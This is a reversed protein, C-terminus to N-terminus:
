HIRKPLVFPPPLTSWCSPSSEVDLTIFKYILFLASAGVSLAFYPVGNGNLIGAYALTAIFIIAFCITAPVVKDGFLVATSRVGIKVDDKRDQCGYITDLM